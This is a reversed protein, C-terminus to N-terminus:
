NASSSNRGVGTCECLWTGPGTGHTAEGAQTETVPGAKAGGSLEGERRAAGRSAFRRGKDWGGKDPQNYRTGRRVKKLLEHDGWKPNPSRMETYGRNGWDHAITVMSYIRNM